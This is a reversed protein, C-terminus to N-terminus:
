LWGCTLLYTLLYAFVSNFSFNESSIYLGQRVSARNEFDDYIFLFSGKLFANDKPVCLPIVTQQIKDSQIGCMLSLFQPADIAFSYM